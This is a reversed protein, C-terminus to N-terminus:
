AFAMAIKKPAQLARGFTTSGFLSRAPGFLGFTFFLPPILRCLVSWYVSQGVSDTRPPHYFHALYIELVVDGSKPPLPIAFDHFPKQLSSTTQTNVSFHMNPLSHSFHNKSSSRYSSFATFCVLRSVTGTPPLCILHLCWSPGRPSLLFLQRSPDNFLFL